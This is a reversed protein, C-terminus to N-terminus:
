RNEGNVSSREVAGVVEVTLMAKRVMGHLDRHVPVYVM